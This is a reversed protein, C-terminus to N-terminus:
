IGLIYRISVIFGLSGVTVSGLIDELDKSGSYRWYGHLLGFRAMSAIRFVLLIPIAFTLLWPLPLSFEFRLLWALTLSCAILLPQLLLISSSRKNSLM